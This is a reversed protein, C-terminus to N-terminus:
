AVAEDTAGEEDTSEDTSEKAPWTPGATSAAVWAEYEGGRGAYKERQKRELGSAANVLVFGIGAYGLATAVLWGALAWVGLAGSALAAPASTLAAAASAGWLVLEGSALVLHSRM